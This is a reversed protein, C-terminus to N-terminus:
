RKCDQKGAQKYKTNLDSILSFFHYVNVLRWDIQALYKGKAEESQFIDFSYHEAVLTKFDRTLAPFDAIFKHFNNAKARRKFSAVINIVAVTLTTHYNDVSGLPSVYSQILAQIEQLAKEFGM